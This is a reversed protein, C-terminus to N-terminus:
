SGSRMTNRKARPLRMICRVTLGVELSSARSNSNGNAGHDKGSSSSSTSNRRSSSNCQNSGAPFHPRQKEWNRPKTGRRSREPLGNQTSSQQLSCVKNINHIYIQSLVFALKSPTACDKFPGQEGIHDQPSACKQPKDEVCTKSAICWAFGAKRCDVCNNIGPSSGSGTASGAEPVPKTPAEEAEMADLEEDDDELFEAVVFPLQAVTILGLGAFASPHNTTIGMVGIPVCPSPGILAALLALLAVHM